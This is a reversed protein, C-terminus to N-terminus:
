PRWKKHTTITQAGLAVARDREGEMLDYHGTASVQELGHPAGPQFMVRGLGLRAAFAHLEDETDATMGFWPDSMPSRGSLAPSQGPLKYVYVTMVPKLNTPARRWIRVLGISPSTAPTDGREQM